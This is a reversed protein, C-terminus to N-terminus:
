CRGTDRARPELEILRPPSYPLKSMEPKGRNRQSDGNTVELDKGPKRLYRHRRPAILPAVLLAFIVAIALLKAPAVDNASLWLASLVILLLATVRRVLPSDALRDRLIAAIEM